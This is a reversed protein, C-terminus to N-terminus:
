AHTVGYSGGLLNVRGSGLASLVQTTDGAAMASTSSEEARTVRVSWPRVVVPVGNM